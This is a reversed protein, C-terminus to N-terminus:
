APRALLAPRLADLVDDVTIALMSSCIEHTRKYSTVAHPSRLVTLSGGYPGNRAPNTPGFIAVGPRGLAAAVHLPGSDVGVVAVARRAADILGALGSSHVHVDPVEALRPAAAAPGNLVLAVGYEQRLRRGLEAFRELPWQKAPWGALPNALVFPGAPLEGQPEGPPLHFDAVTNTAGAARVLDLHRDVVHTSASRTPRTYFLAAPWERVEARHYGVITGAQSASAILASRILGQLDLVLDFGGARVARRAALLGSLTGKDIPITADLAPNGALLPQWIRAVVWTIEAHPFSSRLSAAAPLAHIVDGM